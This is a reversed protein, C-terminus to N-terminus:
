FERVIVTAYNSVVGMYECSVVTAGVPGTARFLGYLTGWAYANDADIIFGPDNDSVRWDVLNTIPQETGNSYIATADFQVTGGIAVSAWTPEIQISELVVPEPEESGPLPPGEVTIEIGQSTVGRYACTITATGGGAARLIGKGIFEIVEIDSSIWAAYATIPYTATGPYIGTAGVAHVQGPRMTEAVNFINIQLLDGEPELSAPTDGKCGMGFAIALIALTLLSYILALRM